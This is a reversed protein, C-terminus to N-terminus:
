THRHQRHWEEQTPRPDNAVQEILARFHQWGTECINDAIAPGGPTQEVRPFLSLSFSDNDPQDPLWSLTLFINSFELSAVRNPETGNEINEIQTLLKQCHDKELFGKQPIRGTGLSIELSPALPGEAWMQWLRGPVALGLNGVDPIATAHFYALRGSETMAQMSRRAGELDRARIETVIRAAIEGVEMKNTRLAYKDALIPDYSLVEDSSLGHWVPLVRTTGGIMRAFLASLEEQPWKKAFFHHSLIVTGYRSTALGHRIQQHLSDGVRLVSEDYWVSLGRRRLERELPRAVQEKDESAHSIFVDRVRTTTLVQDEVVRHSAGFRPSGM